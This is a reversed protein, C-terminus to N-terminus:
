LIKEKILIEKVKVILEEITGNNDITYKFSYNDLATESPHYYKSREEPKDIAMFRSREDERNIRINFGGKNLIANAENEFRVDTIIWNPYEFGNVVVDIPYSDKPLVKEANKSYKRTYKSFLANVWVNKGRHTRGIDTGEYQLIVRFKVWFNLSTTQLVEKLEEVTNILNLSHIDIKHSIEGTLYNVYYNEKFDRDELQERTCGTLIVTIDKLADAFKHIQWDNNWEQGFATLGCFQEFHELTGAKSHEWKINTCYQIISGVLDKGSGIKGSVGIISM